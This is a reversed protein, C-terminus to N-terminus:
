GFCCIPECLGTTIICFIPLVLIELIRFSNIKFCAPLLLIHINGLNIVKCSKCICFLYGFGYLSIGHRADM